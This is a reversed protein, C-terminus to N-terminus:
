WEQDRVSRADDHVGCVRSSSSVDSSSVNSKGGANSSPLGGVDHANKTAYQPVTNSHMMLDNILRRPATSEGEALFFILFLSLPVLRKPAQHTCFHHLCPAASDCDPFDLLLFVLTNYWVLPLFFVCNTYLASTYRTGSLLSFFFVIQTLHLWLFLTGSLHSLFFVIQKFHVQTFHILCSPSSFCLKHLTCKHLTYWVLPLLFVCNTYLKLATM